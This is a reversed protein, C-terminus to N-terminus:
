CRAKLFRAPAVTSAHHQYASDTGCLQDAIIEACLGSSLIGRSAHATSIALGDYHIVPKNGDLLQPPPLLGAVPMRGPVVCRFGVRGDSISQMELNGALDPLYQALTDLNEQHEVESLVYDSRERNYTAGIILETQSSPLVYGKHCIVKRIHQPEDQQIISIQGGVQRLPLWSSQEFAAAHHGSAIVAIDAEAIVMGAKDRAQWCPGQRHLQSVETNTRLQIDPHDLNWACLSPPSVWGGSPYFLSDNNIRTGCLDTAETASIVRVTDKSLDKRLRIREFREAIKEDRPLHVVGTQEHQIADGAQELKEHLLHLADLYFAERPSTVAELVPMYIGAPNGSTEQAPGDMREIVMVRMGREALSRAVASGALGAGIVLADM